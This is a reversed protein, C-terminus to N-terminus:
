PVLLLAGQVASPCVGRVEVGIDGRWVVVVVVVVVGHGWTSRSALSGCGRAGAAATSTAYM